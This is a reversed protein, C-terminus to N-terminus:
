DKGRHEDLFGRWCGNTRFYECPTPDPAPLLEDIRASLAELDLIMREVSMRILALQQASDKNPTSKKVQDPMYIDIPHHQKPSFKKGPGDSPM